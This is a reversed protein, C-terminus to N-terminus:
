RPGAKRALQLQDALFSETAPSSDVVRGSAVLSFADVGPVDLASIRGPGRLLEILFGRDEATVWGAGFEADARTRGFVHPVDWRDRLIRLGRHGTRETRITREGTMGLHAPKFFRKLDATTVAGRLPTLGDYLRLQDLSHAGITLRRRARASSREVCRRRLRRSARGLLARPRAPSGGRRDSRSGRNEGTL